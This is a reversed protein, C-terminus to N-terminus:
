RYVNVTPTPFAPQAGVLLAAPSGIELIERLTAAPRAHKSLDLDTLVALAADLVRVATTSPDTNDVTRLLVGVAGASIAERVADIVDVLGTAASDVPIETVPGRGAATVAAATDAASPFGGLVVLDAVSPIEGIERPDHAYWALVPSDQLSTPVSLPGAIDVVGHHDIQVIRDSHVLIGTGQDAVVSDIPWSQWLEAIALAADASTVASLEAGDNLGAAGWANDGHGRADRIGLLLGARGHTLHDLSLVRRALNYPLDHHAAGAIVVPPGGATALATAIISPDIDTARPTEFIHSPCTIRDIGIVAFAATAASWRHLSEPHDLLHSAEDGTLGIAVVPIREPAVLETM